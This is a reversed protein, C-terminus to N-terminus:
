PSENQGLEFEVMVFPEPLEKGGASAYLRRAAVNALGTAV